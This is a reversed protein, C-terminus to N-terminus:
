NESKAPITARIEAETWPLLIEQVGTLDRVEVPFGEAPFLVWDGWHSEGPPMPQQFYLTVRYFGAQDLGMPEAVSTLDLWKQNEQDGNPGDPKFNLYMQESIARVGADAFQVSVRPGSRLAVEVKRGTLDVMERRYGEASVWLKWGEDAALIKFTPQDTGYWEDPPTTDRTLAYNIGNNLAERSQASVLVDVGYLRSRLDLPDLRPDPDAGPDHSALSEVRYLARDTRNDWIWLDVRESVGPGCRFQGNRELHASAEANGQSIDAGAVVVRVEVDTAAIDPDLLVRGQLFRGRKLVIRHDTAKERWALSEPKFDAHRASLRYIGEPMFGTLTFAGNQDTRQLSYGDDRWSERGRRMQRRSLLVGAGVIPQGEEDVVIGAALIPLPELRLEGLDNPGSRWAARGPLRGALVVHSDPAGYRIEISRQVDTREQVWDGDLTFRLWGDADTRREDGDANNWDVTTTRLLVELDANALPTGDPLLVRLVLSPRLVRQVAEIVTEEGASEPGRASTLEFNWTGDFDVGVELGMGLGVHPFRAEGQTSEMAHSGNRAQQYFETEELWEPRQETTAQLVVRAADLMPRRDPDLLRVVVSGTAPLILLQEEAPIASMRVPIVPPDHLPLAPALELDASGSRHFVLRQLHSFVARGDSGTTREVLWESQEDQMSRLGVPVGALDHNQANAVRVRLATDAELMLKVIQGDRSAEQYHEGYRSGQRGLLRLWDRPQAMIVQGREDAVFKQAFRPALAEWDPESKLAEGLENEDYRDPDFVWVTAGAVPSGQILDMVKVILRPGVILSAAEASADPASIAAEARALSEADDGSAGAAGPLPVGAARGGAEDASELRETGSSGERLLIWAALGFIIALGLLAFRSLRM